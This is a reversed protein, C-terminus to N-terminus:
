DPKGSPVLWGTVEHRVIESVGGVQTAVVPLGAAMAEVVALPLGEVGSSPLCFIDAAAMLQPVDDRMGLFGIADTVSLQRAQKEFSARKEGDGALLLRAAPQEALIAPMAAILFEQGKGQSMRAACFIIPANVPLGLEQRVSERVNKDLSSGSLCSGNHITLIKQALRSKCLSHRMLYSALSEACSVVRDSTLAFLESVVTATVPQWPGHASSIIPLRQQGIALRAALATSPSNAHIATIEHAIVTKRLIQALQYIGVPSKTHTHAQIHSVGPALRATCAGGESVVFVRHQRESLGNAIQVVFSGVGGIGLRHAILLINM